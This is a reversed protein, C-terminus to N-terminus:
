EKIYDRTLPVAAHQRALQMQWVMHGAHRFALESGSLYFEFMRMFREDYLGTITERNRELNNRWCELTRAYHMRLIELDTMILGSKEAAPMVESLADPEFQEVVPRDGVGDVAGGEIPDDRDAHELMDPDVVVAAEELDDM